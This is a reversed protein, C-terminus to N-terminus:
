SYISFPNTSSLKNAKLQFIIEFINSQQRFNNAIVSQGFHSHNMYNIVISDPKYCVLCTFSNLVSSEIWMKITMFKKKTWNVVGRRKESIKMAITVKKLDSFERNFKVSRLAEFLIPSMRIRPNTM